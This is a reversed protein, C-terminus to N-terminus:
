HLSEGASADGLACAFRYAIGLLGSRRRRRSLSAVSVLVGQHQPLRAPCSDIRFQIEGAARHIEESRATDDLLDILVM